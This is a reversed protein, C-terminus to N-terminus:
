EDNSALRLKVLVAYIKTGFPIMMIDEKKLIKLVFITIIYIVAGLIISIITSMNQGIMTNLGQNIFYTCVGMFISAFIPAIVMRWCKLHLKINKQLSIACILFAVFQCIITSIGAGMIEINPNSILVINLVFKIIIGVILAIITMIQGTRNKEM